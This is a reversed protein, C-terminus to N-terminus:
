CCQASTLASSSVSRWAGQENNVRAGARCQTHLLRLQEEYTDALTQIARPSPRFAVFGGTICTRGPLDHDNISVIDERARDLHPWPSRASYVVDTESNLFSINALLLQLELGTRMTML